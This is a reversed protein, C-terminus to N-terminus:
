RSGIILGGMLEGKVCAPTRPSQPTSCAPQDKVQQVPGEVCVVSSVM